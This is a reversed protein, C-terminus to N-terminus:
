LIFKQKQHPFKREKKIRQTTKKKLKIYKIYKIQLIILHQHNIFPMFHISILKQISVGLLTLLDRNEWFFFVCM